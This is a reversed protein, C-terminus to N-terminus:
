STLPGYHALSFALTFVLRSCNAAVPRLVLAEATALAIARCPLSFHLRPSESYSAAVPQLQNFCAAV